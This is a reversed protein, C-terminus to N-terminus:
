PFAGHVEGEVVVLAGDLVRGPLEGLGFQGRVTGFPVLGFMERDIDHTQRGLHAEAADVRGFLVASHRQTPDLRRQDKLFQRAAVDGRGGEDRDV